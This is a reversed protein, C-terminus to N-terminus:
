FGALFDKAAECLEEATRKIKNLSCVAATLPVLMLAHVAAERSKEVCATGAFDCFRM